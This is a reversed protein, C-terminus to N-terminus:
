DEDIPECDSAPVCEGDETVREDFDRLRQEISDWSTAYEFDAELVRQAESACDAVYSTWESELSDLAAQMRERADSQPHRPDPGFTSWGDATRGTRIEPVYEDHPNEADFEAETSPHRSRSPRATAGIGKIWEAALILRSPEADLGTGLLFKEVDVLSAVLAVGGGYGDYIAWSEISDLRVGRERMTERLFDEACEGAFTPEFFEAERACLLDRLRDPVEEPRYARVKKTFEHRM